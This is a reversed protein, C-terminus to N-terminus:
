KNVLPYTIDSDEYNVLNEIMNNIEFPTMLQTGKRRILTMM